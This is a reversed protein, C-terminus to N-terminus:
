IKKVVSALFCLVSSSDTLEGYRPFYLYCDRPAKIQEGNKRYGILQGQDIRMHSKLGPLLYDGGGNEITADIHFVEITSDNSIKLENESLKEILKFTLKSIKESLSDCFGAQGCELAMAYAGMTSAYELMTKGDNSFGKSSFTVRPIEPLLSHALQILKENKEFVFFAKETPEVTQHFDMLFKSRAVIQSLTQARREEKYKIDRVLFSRNLDKENFRKNETAADVNCLLFGISIALKKKSESLQKLITNLIQIGGVEDGHVLATLLLDIKEKRDNEEIVFGYDDIAVTELQNKYSLFLEIETLIRSM